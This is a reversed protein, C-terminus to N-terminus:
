IWAGIRRAQLWAVVTAHSALGRLGAPRRVKRSAAPKPEM